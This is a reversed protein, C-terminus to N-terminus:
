SGRQRKRMGTKDRMSEANSSNSITSDLITFYKIVKSDM